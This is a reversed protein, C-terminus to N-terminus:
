LSEREFSPPIYFSVGLNVSLLNQLTEDTDVRPTRALMFIQDRLEVRIALWDNLFFHQGVAVSPSFRLDGKKPGLVGGGLAVYTDFHFVQEALLSLKGYFPAWAVEVRGVYIPRNPNPQRPAAGGTVGIDQSISLYYDGSVGFWFSELVHYIAAASVVVHDYFADNLSLAAAPSLELRGAKEFTRRTVSPVREALTKPRPASTSPAATAEDESSEADQARAPGAVALLAAVLTACWLSTLKGRVRPGGAVIQPSPARMM